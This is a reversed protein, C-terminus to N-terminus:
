ARGPPVGLGVSIRLMLTEALSVLLGSTACIFVSSLKMGMLDDKVGGLLDSDPEAPRRISGSGERLLSGVWGGRGGGGWGTGSGWVGQPCNLVCRRKAGFILLM